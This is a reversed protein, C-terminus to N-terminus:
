DRLVEIGIKTALPHATVVMVSDEIMTKTFTYQHIPAHKCSTFGISIVLIALLLTQYNKM